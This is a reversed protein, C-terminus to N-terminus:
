TICEFHKNMKVISQGVLSWVVLLIFLENKKDRASLASDSRDLSRETHSNFGDYERQVQTAKSRGGNSHHISTSIRNRMLLDYEPRFDRRRVFTQWSRIAVFPGQELLTKRFLGLITRTPIRQTQGMGDSRSTGCGPIHLGFDRKSCQLGLVGYWGDSQASFWVTCADRLANNWSHM